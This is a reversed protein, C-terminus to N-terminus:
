RPILKLNALSDVYKHLQTLMDNHDKELGHLRDALVEHQYIISAAYATKELTCYFNTLDNILVRMSAAIEMHASFHHIFGTFKKKAKGYGHSAGNWSIKIEELSYKAYINDFM